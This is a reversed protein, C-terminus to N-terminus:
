LSSPAPRGQQLGKLLIEFLKEPVVPKSIFDNMGANLCDARDESFANATMAIIPVEQRGPLQRIARTAEVGNMVPMQMDMLIIQYEQAAVKDVAEQGDGACDIQWGLDELVILAVEQNVFDDDVLLLRTGPYDERLIKEVDPLARALADEAARPGDAASARGLRATLWFTSGVGPTSSVSADGGMMRALRRTIALGLGTGGFKRTTSNDAQEFSQFLRGMHEAAIGIGSDQVEFRLLVQDASEEIVRARLVIRGQETFKLANGLYNLLAQGLRPADGRFVGLQPDADIVLELGKERVGEEILAGVRALLAQLDFDSQELVLKGSEIKSIDLIDNIVGLLHDAAAAIKDLKDAEPTGAWSRRLVQSLGVIANMPTRIEHSMNALFASKAQNAAEAQQRAVLLEATRQAVREELHERYHELEASLRKKDTIDRNSGRRGINRGADDFMTQCNHEIWRLEGDRCVIRFEMACPDGVGYKVHQRYRPRDDPYILREMLEPDDLFAQPPYGYLALAAESIYKFGENADTWFVCEASNEALLRYKRESAQLAREAHQRASVDILTVRMGQNLCPAFDLRAQWLSGDGHRLALEVSAPESSDNLRQLYQTWREQDAAAVFNYLARHLLHDREVGLLKVATLNLQAILGDATLTLYGVPAFEYLDVYRDRSEELAAQTQRLAENQMELEIQHVQIEHRLDSVPRAAEAEPQQALATEAAARLANDAAPDRDNPHIPNM